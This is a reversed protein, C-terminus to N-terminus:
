LVKLTDLQSAPIIKANVNSQEFTEAHNNEDLLHRSSMSEFVWVYQRIIKNFFKEGGPRFELVNYQTRRQKM